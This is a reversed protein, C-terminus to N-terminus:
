NTAIIGLRLKQVEPWTRVESLLRSHLRDGYGFRQHGGRVILVGIYATDDAPYGRLVDAFAIMEDAVWLGFGYKNQESVTEPRGVLASLADSAGPPYGTVEEAYTPVSELLAQLSDVDDRGLQRFTQEM